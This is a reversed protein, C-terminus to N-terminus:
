HAYQKVVLSHYILLKTYNGPRTQFGTVPARQFPENPERQISAILPQLLQEIRIIKQLITPCHAM